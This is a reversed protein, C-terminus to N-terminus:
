DVSRSDFSAEDDLVGKRRESSGGHLTGYKGAYHRNVITRGFLVM